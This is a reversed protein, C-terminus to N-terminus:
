ILKFVSVTQIWLYSDITRCTWPIKDLLKSKPNSGERGKSSFGYEFKKKIRVERFGIQTPTQIEKCWWKFVQKQPRAHL